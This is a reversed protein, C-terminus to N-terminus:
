KNILLISLILILVILFIIKVHNSRSTERETILILSKKDIKIGDEGFAPMVGLGGTVVDVVQDYSPKLGDLSPGIQGAAGADKLVHCGACMGKGNFIGRGLKM